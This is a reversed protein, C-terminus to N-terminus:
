LSCQAFQLAQEKTVVTLSQKDSSTKCWVFWACTVNDTKGDGTFSIRPLVITHTPPHQSLFRARDKCPELYSLRLLMAIGAKATRHAGEVIPQAVSFPPNTVIWNYSGRLSVTEWYFPDTADLHDDTPMAPDIDNTCVNTQQQLVKAIALDGACCELVSGTVPVYHLLAATAFEPTFYQDLRRRKTM